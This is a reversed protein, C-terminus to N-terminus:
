EKDEGGLERGIIAEVQAKLVRTTQAVPRGRLGNEIQDAEDLTISGSAVMPLLVMSMQVVGGGGGFFVGASM